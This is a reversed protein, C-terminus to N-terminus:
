GTGRTKRHQATADNKFPSLKAKKSSHRAPEAGAQQESLQLEAYRVVNGRRPPRLQKWVSDLEAPMSSEEKPGALMAGVEYALWYADVGCLRAFDLTYKSLGGETIRTRASQVTQEQIIKDTALRHQSHLLDTLARALAADSTFGGHAMARTLREGYRM